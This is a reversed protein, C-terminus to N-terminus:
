KSRRPRPSRRLERSRSLRSQAASQSAKLLACFNSFTKAMSNGMMRNTAKSSDSASNRGAKTTRSRCTFRLTSRNAWGQRKMAENLEEVCQALCADFDKWRKQLFYDPNTRYFQLDYQFIGFGHCFKNPNRVAGAYGPTYQAMDVLAQRAIVFMEAGRPAALLEAKTKPFASRGRDADLTDGVCLRLVDRESLGKEVLPSWIYGTEQQAIASVMDISFPTGRISNRIRKHFTTKFWAIADRTKM